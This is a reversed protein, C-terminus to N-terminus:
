SALRPAQPCAAAQDPAPDSPKVPTAPALGAVLVPLFHNLSPYRGRNREFARLRQVLQPVLKHGKAVEHAVMARGTAEGRSLAAVRAFVAAVIEAEFPAVAARLRKAKSKTSPEAARLSDEAFGSAVFIDAPGWLRPDTPWRIVPRAASTLAPTQCSGLTMGHALSLVASRGQVPAGTYIEWDLAAYEASHQAQEVSAKYLKRQAKLFTPLRTARGLDRTLSDLSPPKFVAAGIFKHDLAQSDVAIPVTPAAVSPEAGSNAPDGTFHARIAQEYASPAPEPASALIRVIGDLEIEADIELALRPKTTAEQGFPWIDHSILAIQRLTQPDDERGSYRQTFGKPRGPAGAWRYFIHAGVQVSKALSPAWYPVVQETHYHTALGVPAYVAGSLAAHAIARARDWERRSPVRQLSGDCTYSFQCGTSRTSGQYVVSCVSAPFAPHRVRNLIVQAVAAQGQPSESAAEYYIASTLCELARSRADGIDTLALPQAAPGREASFPIRRNLAVADSESLPRLLLLPPGGKNEWLSVQGSNDAQVAFPSTSCTALAPVCPILMLPLARSAKGRFETALASFPRRKNVHQQLNQGLRKNLAKPTCACVTKQGSLAGAPIETGIQSSRKAAM